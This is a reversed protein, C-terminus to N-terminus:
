CKVHGARTDFAKLQGILGDLRLALPRGERGAIRNLNGLLHANIAVKDLTRARAANAYAIRFFHIEAKIGVSHLDRHQPVACEHIRGTVPVAAALPKLSWRAM